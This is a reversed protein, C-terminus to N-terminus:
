EGKDDEVKLTLGIGAEVGACFGTFMFALPSDETIGTETGNGTFLGIAEKYYAKAEEDTTLEELHKQFLAYYIAYDERSLHGM